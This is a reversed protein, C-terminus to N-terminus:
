FRSEIHAYFGYSLHCLFAITKQNLKNFHHTTAQETIEIIQPICVTANKNDLRPTKSVFRLFIIQTSSLCILLIVQIPNTTKGSIGFEHLSHMETYHFISILCIKSAGITFNQALISSGIFFFQSLSMLMPQLIKLVEM